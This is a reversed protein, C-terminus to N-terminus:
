FTVIIDVIRNFKIKLGGAMIVGNRVATVLLEISQRRGAYDIYEIILPSGREMATKVRAELIAIRDEDLDPPELKKKAAEADHMMDRHEPLIIRHGAWLNNNRYYDRTNSM